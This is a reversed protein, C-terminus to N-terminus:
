VGMDILMECFIGIRLFMEFLVEVIREIEISFFVIVEFYCIVYDVLIFIYCNGKDIILFFFGGFWCCSELVIWRYIVNM